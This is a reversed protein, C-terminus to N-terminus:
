SPSDMCIPMAPRPVIPRTRARLSASPMGPSDSAHTDARSSSFARPQSSSSPISTASRGAPLTGPAHRDRPRTRAQLPARASRGASASRRCAPSPARRRRAAAADPAARAPSLLVAPADDHRGAPQEVRRRRPLPRPCSGNRASSSACAASRARRHAADRSSRIDRDFPQVLRLQHEGSARSAAAPKGALTLTTAASASAPMPGSRVMISM